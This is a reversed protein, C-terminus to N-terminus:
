RRPQAEPAQASSPVTPSTCSPTTDVSSALSSESSSLSRTPHQRVPEREIQVPPPRPTPNEVRTQPASSPRGGEPGEGETVVASSPDSPLRFHQVRRMSSRLWTPKVRPKREDPNGTQQARCTHVWGWDIEEDSDARRRISDSPLSSSGEGTDSVSGSVSPVSITARRHPRPDQPSRLFSKAPQPPPEPAPPDPQDSTEPPGGPDEVGPSTPVDISGITARRHKRSRVEEGRLSSAGLPRKRKRSVEVVEGSGVVAKKMASISARFRRDRALTCWDATLIRKKRQRWKNGLSNTREFIKEITRKVEEEDPADECGSLYEDLDKLCEEIGDEQDDHDNLIKDLEDLVGLMERDLTDDEISILVQELEVSQPRKQPTNQTSQLAQELQLLESDLLTEMETEMLVGFPAEPSGVNFDILDDEGAM